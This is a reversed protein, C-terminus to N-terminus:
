YCIFKQLYKYRTLNAFVLKDGFNVANLRCATLNLSLARYTEMTVLITCIYYVKKALKNIECFLMKSKFYM